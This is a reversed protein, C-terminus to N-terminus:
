LLGVPISFLSRAPRGLFRNEIEPLIFILKEEGFRRYQKHPDM